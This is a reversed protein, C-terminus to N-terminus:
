MVARVDYNADASWSQMLIADANREMVPRVVAQADVNCM